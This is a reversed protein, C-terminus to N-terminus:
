ICVKFMFIEVDLALKSMHHLGVGRNADRTKSDTRWELVDRREISALRWLHVLVLHLRSKTTKLFLHQRRRKIDFIIYFHEWGTPLAEAVQYVVTREIPGECNNILFPWKECLTSIELHQYFANMM